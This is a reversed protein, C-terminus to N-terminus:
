PLLKKITGLVKEAIQRMVFMWYQTSRGDRFGRQTNQIAAVVCLKVRVEKFM